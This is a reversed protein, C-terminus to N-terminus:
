IKTWYWLSYGIDRDLPLKAIKLHLLIQGRHHGEHALAYGLFGVPGLKSGKIQGTREAEAFLEGMAEGSDILAQRVAARPATGAPIKKLSKALTKARRELWYFRAMHIHVFYSTVAKGRPLITAALQEDTLADLLRLNVRNNIRWTDALACQTTTQDAM